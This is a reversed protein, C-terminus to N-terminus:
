KTQTTADIQENYTITWKRVFYMPLLIDVILSVAYGETFTIPMTPQNDSQNDSELDAWNIDGYYTLIMTDIAVNLLIILFGKKFKKIRYFAYLPTIIVPIAAIIMQGVVDIKKAL